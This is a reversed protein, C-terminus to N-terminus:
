PTLSEFTKVFFNNSVHRTLLRLYFSRQRFSPRYNFENM